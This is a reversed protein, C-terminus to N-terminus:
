IKQWLDTAPPPAAISIPENKVPHLFEIKYAHLCISGDPNGRQFGYKNDGKIPCGMSSLQARIQHHRGTFLEIELLSYNDLVKLTTYALSAKQSGPVETPYMRSFNKAPDKKIWGNLEQKDVPPKGKVIARYIKSVKRDKFIENMRVLSKSTKCLVVVGSVPKDLRHSVGIFVNGPKQYKDRIYEKAEQELSKIGTEDDQVPMGNPKNVILLHNDEFLVQLM